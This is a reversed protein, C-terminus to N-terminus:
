VDMKIRVNYRFKNPNNGQFKERSFVIAEVPLGTDDSVEDLIDKIEASRDQVLQRMQAITMNSPQSQQPPRIRNEKETTKLM